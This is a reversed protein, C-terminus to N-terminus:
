PKPNLTCDVSVKISKAIKDKVADPIKIQYDEPNVNFNGKVIIQTGKLEITGDASM